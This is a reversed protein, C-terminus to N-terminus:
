KPCNRWACSVAIASARGGSARRPEIPDLAEKGEDGLAFFAAADTATHSREAGVDSREDFLM